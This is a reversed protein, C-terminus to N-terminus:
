ELQDAIPPRKRRLLGLIGASLLAIMSPEPIPTVLGALTEQRRDTLYLGRYGEDAAFHGSSTWSPILPAESGFYDILRLGVERGGSEPFNELWTSAAESSPLVWTATVGEIASNSFTVNESEPLNTSTRLIPRLPVQIPYDLVSENGSVGSGVITIAAKLPSCLM